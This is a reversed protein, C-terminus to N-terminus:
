CFDLLVQAVDGLGVVVKAETAAPNRVEVVDVPRHSQM